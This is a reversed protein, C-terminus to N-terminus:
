LLYCSYCSKCFNIFKGKVILLKKHIPKYQKEDLHWSSILLTQRFGRAKSIDGSLRCAMIVISKRLTHREKSHLHNILDQQKPLIRPHKKWCNLFKRTDYKLQRFLLLMIYEIREGMGKQLCREILRFFPFNSSFYKRWDVTFVSVFNVNSNAKLSCNNIVQANRRCALLNINPM